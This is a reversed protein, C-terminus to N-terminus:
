VRRDKWKIGNGLVRQVIGWFAAAEVLLAGFPVILALVPSGFRRSWNLFPLVVFLWSLLAWRRRMRGTAAMGSLVLPSIAGTVFLATVITSAGSWRMSGASLRTMGRWLHALDPYMAVSAAEDGHMIPVRYTLRTLHRGLAIDELMENRVAAFGRSQQYVERRLLIYQGNLVPKQRRWGAFLGAFAAELAAADLVGQTEQRLFLSLGDLDHTVAHCIASAASDPAHWTDADTFLLWEGRAAAAGVHCAHPKGKWGTPPEEKITLLTAGHARAVAATQDTSHDDVVLIELTGPYRLANLSPLLRRLNDAENRAPVIISLSPLAIGDHRTLNLRPLARYTREARLALPPVLLM